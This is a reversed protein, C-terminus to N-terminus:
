EIIVGEDSKVLEGLIYAGEGNAKLVEVAKDADAKDVVVCMGVGMNFTNFMDREPIKGTKQILKFIPLIRVDDKKIFASIGDPL